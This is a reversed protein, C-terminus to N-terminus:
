PLAEFDILTRGARGAALHRDLLGRISVGGAPSVTCFNQEAWIESIGSGASWLGSYRKEGDREYVAIDDLSLGEARRLRDFYRFTELPLETQLRTKPEGASWVGAFRPQGDVKYAELDILSMSSDQLERYKASFAARDLNRFIGQKARGREFLGNWYPRGGYEHRELDVLRWGDKASSEWYDRFQNRTDGLRLIQPPGQERRFVSDYHTLGNHSRTEFDHLRWGRAALWSRESRFAQPRMGFRQLTEINAPLSRWVGTFDGPCDDKTKSADDTCRAIGILAPPPATGTTVAQFVQRAIRAPDGHRSNAYVAVVIKDPENFYLRLHTQINAHTGGHSAVDGGRELGIGLAYYDGRMRPGRTTKLESLRDAWLADEAVLKGQIIGNGLKALDEINSAWGGGPLVWHRPDQTTAEVRGCRRAFGSSTETMQVLSDMGLPRAINAQVFRAHDVGSVQELALAALSFAATSYKYSTGPKFCLSQDSFTALSQAANFRKGPHKSRTVVPSANSPCMDTNTYHVIGSRNSLTHRITMSRTWPGKDWAPVHEYVPDDISFANGARKDATVITLATLTKSISAWPAVDDRHLPARRGRDSHGYAGVHVIADGRAVAVLAGPLDQRVLEEEVTEDIHSLRPQAAASGVSFAFAVISPGAVVALLNARM